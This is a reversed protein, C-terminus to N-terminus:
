AAARRRRRALLTVAVGAAAVGAIALSGRHALALVDDISEAGAYGLLTCASAWLGSGAVAAPAFRWVRMGTAGAVAPALARVLGVFRGLVITKGGHGAVYREVCALRAPTLRFRPGHALLFGRGLRRGVTFSVIDGAAACAWVLALLPILQVTGEAAAVGGLIVVLEGPALLGIAAGTELFALGGVLAYTYPGLTGTFQRLLHEASPPHVAGTGIAVAVAAGIVLAARQARSLRQRGAFAGALLLAATILPLPRM